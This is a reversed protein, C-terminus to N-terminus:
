TEPAFIHTNFWNDLTRWFNRILDFFGGAIHTSAATPDIHM